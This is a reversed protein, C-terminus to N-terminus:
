LLAESRQILNLLSQSFMPYNKKLEEPSLVFREEENLGDVEAYGEGSAICEAHALARLMAAGALADSLSDQVRFAGAPNKPESRYQVRFAVYTALMLYNSLENVLEKSRSKQMLDYVVNLSNLMLKKNLIAVMNGRLMKDSKSTDPDPIDEVTLMAGSREPSRGLLYDCSVGYYDAARVLFDLGCERIGKEYHSLLAQSIQLDAAAAKQSIKKEKRLLTLIRPFSDNMIM